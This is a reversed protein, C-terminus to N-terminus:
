TNIELYARDRMPFLVGVRLPQAVLSNCKFRVKDWTREEVQNSVPPWRRNQFRLGKPHSSQHLRM